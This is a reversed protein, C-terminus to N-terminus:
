TDIETDVNRSRGATSNKWTTPTFVPTSCLNNLEYVHVNRRWPIWDRTVLAALLVAVVTVMVMVVAAAAAVVATNLKGRCM